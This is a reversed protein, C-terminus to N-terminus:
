PRRTPAHHFDACCSLLSHRTLRAHRQNCSAPRCLNKLLSGPISPKVDTAGEPIIRQLSRSTSALHETSVGYNLRGQSENQDITEGAPAEAHHVGTPSLPNPLVAKGGKKILRSAAASRAKSPLPLCGPKRLIGGGKVLEYCYYSPAAAPPPGPTVRLFPSCRRFPADTLRAKKM